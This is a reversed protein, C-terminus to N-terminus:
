DKNHLEQIAALAKRISSYHEVIQGAYEALWTTKGGTIYGVRRPYTEQTWVEYKGLAQRITELLVIVPQEPEPFTALWKPGQQNRLQQLYAWEGPYYSGSRMWDELLRQKWDAGAWAKYSDLETQQETTIM